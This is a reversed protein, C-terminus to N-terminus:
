RLRPVSVGNLLGFVQLLWLCVVIILVVFLGILSM